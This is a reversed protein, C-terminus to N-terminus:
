SAEYAILCPVTMFPDLVYALSAEHFSQCIDGGIGDFSVVLIPTLKKGRLVRDLKWKVGRDNMTLPERDCARLLDNVRRDVIPADKLKPILRAARAPTLRLALYEHAADFDKDQAHDAWRIEPMQHTAM